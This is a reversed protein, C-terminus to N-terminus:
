RASAPAGLLGVLVISWTANSIAPNTVIVTMGLPGPHKIRRDLRFGAVLEPPSGPHAHEHDAAARHVADHRDLGDAAVV